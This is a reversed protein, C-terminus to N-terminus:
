VGYEPAELPPVTEPQAPPPVTFAKKRILDEMIAIGKQFDGRECDIEAGIRTHNRRGDSNNSRGVGYRDYFSILQRCRAAPSVTAQALQAAVLLAVIEM